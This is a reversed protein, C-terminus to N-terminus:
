AFTLLRLSAETPGHLQDPQLVVRHMICLVSSTTGVFKGSPDLCVALSM